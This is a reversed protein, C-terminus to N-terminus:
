SRGGVYHFIIKSTADGGTLAVINIRLFLVPKSIVFENGSTTCSVPSASDVFYWNVGDSSGQANFTCASFATGSATWDITYNGPRPAKLGDAVAYNGLQGTTSSSTVTAFNYTLASSLITQAQAVAVAYGAVLLWGLIEAFKVRRKM